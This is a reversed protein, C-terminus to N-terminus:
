ARHRASYVWLLRAFILLLVLAIESVVISFVYLEAGRAALAWCAALQVLLGILQIGSSLWYRGKSLLYALLVSSAMSFPVQWSIAQVAAVSGMSSEGFLLPVYTPAAFYSCFAILLGVLFPAGLILSLKSKASGVLRPLVIGGLIQSPIVLLLLVRTAVSAQVLLEPTPGYQAFVILLSSYAHVLVTFLALGLNKRLLGVMAGLRFGATISSLNFRSAANVAITTVIAGFSYSLGIAWLPGGLAAVLVGSLGTALNGGVRAKAAAVAHLRGQLVYSTRMATAVPVLALSLALDWSSAQATVPILVLLAAFTLGTQLLFTDRIVPSDDQRSAIVRVANTGLGADGAVTAYALLSQVLALTGLAELGAHRAVVFSVGFVIVRSIGEAGLLAAGDRVFAKRSSSM